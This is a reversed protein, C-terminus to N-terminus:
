YTIKKKILRYATWKQLNRWKSSDSNGHWDWASASLEMNHTGKGNGPSRTISVGGRNEMPLWETPFFTPQVRPSVRLFSPWSLFFQQPLIKKAHWGSEKAHLRISIGNFFFFLSHPSLFFFSLYFYFVFSSLFFIGDQLCAGRGGGGAHFLQRRRRSLPLLPQPLGELDCPAGALLSVVVSRGWKGLRGEKQAVSHRRLAFCFALYPELWFFFPFWTRQPFFVILWGALLSLFRFLLFALLPQALNKCFSILYSSGPSIAASLDISNQASYSSAEPM